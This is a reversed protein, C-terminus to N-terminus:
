EMGFLKMQEKWSFPLNTGLKTLSISWPARGAFIADVIPPALLTLKRGNDYRFEIPIRIRTNGDELQEIKTKM